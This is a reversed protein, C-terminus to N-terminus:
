ANPAVAAGMATDPEVIAALVLGCTPCRLLSADLIGSRCTEHHQQRIAESTEVQRLCFPCLHGSQGAAAPQTTPPVVVVVDSVVMADEKKYAVGKAFTQLRLIAEDIVFDFNYPLSSLHLLV